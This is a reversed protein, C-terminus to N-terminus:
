LLGKKRMVLQEAFIESVLGNQMHDDFKTFAEPIRKLESGYLYRRIDEQLIFELGAVRQGLENVRGHRCVALLHPPLNRLDCPGLALLLLSELATEDKVEILAGGASLDLTKSKVSGAPPLVIPRSVPRQLIKYKIPIVKLLRVFRRRQVRRVHGLDLLYMVDQSKPQTEKIRASFAYAADARTSYIMVTRNDALLSNGREFQPRSIILRDKKIDSVRCTYIGESKESGVTVRLREWIQFKFPQTEAQVHPM